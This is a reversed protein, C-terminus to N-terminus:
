TVELIIIQIALMSLETITGKEYPFMVKTLGLSLLNSCMVIEVISKVNM